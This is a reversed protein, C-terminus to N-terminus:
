SVQEALVHTCLIPNIHERPPRPQYGQGAVSISVESAFLICPRCRRMRTKTKGGEGPGHRQSPAAGGSVSERCFESQRTLLM